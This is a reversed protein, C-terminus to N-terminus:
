KLSTRVEKWYIIESDRVKGDCILNGKVEVDVVYIFDDFCAEPMHLLISHIHIHILISHIHEHLLISHIHVHLLISHIHM